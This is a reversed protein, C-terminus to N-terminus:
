LYKFEKKLNEFLKLGLAGSKEPHFQFAEVNNNKVACCFEQNDFSSTATVIKTNDPKAIYSHIFYFEKINENIEFELLNSKKNIIIKRWGVNLIKKKKFETIKGKLIGLGSSKIIENSQEFLLQMGLCIGIIKKGKQNQKIIVNDLNKNNLEKMASPFAGVGPLILLRSDEIDRPNDTIKAKFGVKECACLVSYLNGMGYNVISIDIM